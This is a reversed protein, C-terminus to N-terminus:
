TLSKTIKVKTLGTCEYFVTGGISTVSNPITVETLGTCKSFASTEISTVTNPITVETLGACGKFASHGLQVLTYNSEGDSVVSPLILRGSVKNRGGAQSTGKKTEVTKSDEDLVTYTLTQGEYTFQFDRAEMQGPLLALMAVLFLLIKKM